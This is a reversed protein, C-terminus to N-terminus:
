CAYVTRCQGSQRSNAFPADVVAVVVSLASASSDISTASPSPAAPQRLHQVVAAKSKVAPKSPKKSAATDSAAPRVVTTVPVTPRRSRRCSHSTTSSSQGATSVAVATVVSPKSGAAPPSRPPLSAMYLQHRVNDCDPCLLDDGSRGRVSADCRNFPCPGNPVGICRPYHFM